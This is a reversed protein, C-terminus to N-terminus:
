GMSGDAVLIVDFSNPQIQPQVVAEANETSTDDPGTADESSTSSPQRNPIEAMQRYEYMLTRVACGLCIGLKQLRPAPELLWFCMLPGVVFGLMFGWVFDSYDLRGERMRRRATNAGVNNLRSGHPAEDADDHLDVDDEPPLEDENDEDDRESLIACQVVAGFPVVATILERPDIVRGSFILKLHKGEFEENGRKLEGMIDSATTNEGHPLNLTFRREQVQVVISM